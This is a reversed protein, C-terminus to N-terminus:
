QIKERKKLLWVIGIAAAVCSVAALWQSVRLSGLMLSDTRLGEIFTRGLGYWAIYLLFIVGSKSFDFKRLLNEKTTRQESNTTLKIFREVILIVAIGILCWVSEYLFTPHVSVLQGGEWIQM